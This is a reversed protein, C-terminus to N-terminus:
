RAARVARVRFVLTAIVVVGVVVLASVAAAVSHPDGALRAVALWVLGWCLSLTPAIRGRGAVALAVGIVGTAAIVVVAWADASLGWGDFGGATLTAAIDAATAVCVWGLYLGVVGDVTVADLWGRSPLVVCVRFAYGLVVVLLVIVLVSFGLMDAQVSLIWAANLLLSAAVPYGLARQREDAARSPLFQVVTYVVLGLYILSWISFAPTAPAIYTADASLAGGAAKQIPTGGFAGSGIAAGVIALVLSVAVVIQRVRDAPRAAGVTTESM